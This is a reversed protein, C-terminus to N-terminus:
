RKREGRPELRDRVTEMATRLALRVRDRNVQAGGLVVILGVPTGGLFVTGEESAVHAMLLAGRHVRPGQLELDRGLTAALASIPQVAIEGPLVADILRGDLTVALSGRVHDIRSLDLLLRRFDFAPAALPAVAARVAGNSPVM